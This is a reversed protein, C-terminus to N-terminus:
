GKSTPPCLEQGYHKNIAAGYNECNHQRVTDQRAAERNLGTVLAWGMGSIILGAVVGTVAGRLLIKKIQM